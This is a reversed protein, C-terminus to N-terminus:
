GCRTRAEREVTHFRSLEGKKKELASFRASHPKFAIRLRQNNINVCGQEVRRTQAGSDLM